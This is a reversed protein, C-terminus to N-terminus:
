LNAYALKTSCTSLLKIAEDYGRTKKYHIHKKKLAHFCINLIMGGGRGAYHVGGGLIRAYKLFRDSSRLM